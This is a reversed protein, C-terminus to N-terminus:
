LAGEVPQLAEFSCYVIVVGIPPNAFKQIPAHVGVDGLM